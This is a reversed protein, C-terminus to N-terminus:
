AFLNPRYIVQLTIAFSIKNEFIYIAIDLANPCENFLLLLLLFFVVVLLLSYNARLDLLAYSLLISNQNPTAGIIVSFPSSAIGLVLFHMFIWWIVINYADVQLIHSKNCNCCHRLRLFIWWLPLYIENCPLAMLSNEVQLEMHPTDIKTKM